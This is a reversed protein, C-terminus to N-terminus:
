GRDAHCHFHAKLLVTKGYKRAINRALRELGMEMLAKVVRSWSPEPLKKMWVSLMEMRSEVPSRLKDNYKINELETPKIDLHLGLGYWNSVDQLEKCLELLTLEDSLSIHSRIYSQCRHIICTCLLPEQPVTPPYTPTLPMSCM